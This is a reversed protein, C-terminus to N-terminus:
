KIVSNIWEDTNSINQGFYYIDHHKTTHMASSSDINLKRAHAVLTLDHENPTANHISSLVAARHCKKVKRM